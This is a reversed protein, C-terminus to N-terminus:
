YAAASAETGEEGVKITPKHQVSSIQLKNNTDSSSVMETFDVGETFPIRSELEQLAKLFNFGSSTKFKPIMFKGIKVTTRTHKFDIFKAVANNTTAATEQFSPKLDLSRNVWLGNALSLISARDDDESSDCEDDESSDNSGTARASELLKLQQLM